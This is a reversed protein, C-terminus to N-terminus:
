EPNSHRNALIVRIRAKSTKRVFVEPKMITPKSIRRKAHLALLNSNLQDQDKSFLENVKDTLKDKQLILYSSTDNRFKGESLNQQLQQCDIRLGIMYNKIESDIDNLNSFLNLSSSLASRYKLNNLWKHQKIFPFSIREKPNNKFIQQLLQKMDESFHEPYTPHSKLIKQFINQLNPDDFPFEGAVMVYLLVGASWIDCQATYDEGRIIEPDVYLPSGCSTKLLPNEPQFSNSIGFDILKVNNHRDLLVNEAKLDRHAIHKDNHLSELASLLQLFIRQAEKETLRTQNKLYSKLNGNEAYEVVM